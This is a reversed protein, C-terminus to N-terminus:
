MALVLIEQPIQVMVGGPYSISTYLVLLAHYKTSEEWPYM